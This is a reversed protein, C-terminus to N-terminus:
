PRLSLMELVPLMMKISVHYVTCSSHADQSKFHANTGNLPLGDLDRGKQSLRMWDMQSFGKELPIKQRKFDPPVIGAPLQIAVPTSNPDDANRVTAGALPGGYAQFVILKRYCFDDNISL